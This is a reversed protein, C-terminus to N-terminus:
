MGLQSVVRANTPFCRFAIPTAPLMLSVAEMASLFNEADEGEEDAEGDQDSNSYESVSDQDSDVELQPLQPLRGGLATFDSWAAADWLLPFQPQSQVDRVAMESSEPLPFGLKRAQQLCSYCPRQISACRQSALVLLGFRCPVELDDRSATELKSNTYLVISYREGKSPLPGHPINGDFKKWKDHIDFEGSGAVWLGGGTYNGLAIILSEGRNNRDRHLTMRTMATERNVEQNIYRFDLSRFTVV